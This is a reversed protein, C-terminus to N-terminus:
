TSFWDWNPTMHFMCGSDLIWNQGARSDADSFVPLEGDIHDLEM